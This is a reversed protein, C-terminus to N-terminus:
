GACLIEKLITDKLADEFPHTFTPKWSLTNMTHTSDIAYRFDHAEGRPDPVFDIVDSPRVNMVKCIKKVIELNSHENSAGINFVSMPINTCLNMLKCLEYIANCHDKVHIWDRIQSGNGYLPIKRGNKIANICVPIFKTADQREGFNNSCRTIVCKFKPNANKISRLIFEASAKTAAYPNRPNIPSRTTFPPDDELLEGYVEDTSVFIMKADHQLCYKAVNVTGNINSQVFEEINNLSRDVHSEAAFHVVIDASEWMWDPNCIDLVVEKYIGSSSYKDRLYTNSVSTRKDVNTLQNDEGILVSDGFHSGIFGCGGTILYKM